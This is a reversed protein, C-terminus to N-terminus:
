GVRLPHHVGDVASDGGLLSALDMATLCNRSGSRPSPSVSASRIEQFTRTPSSTFSLWTSASTSVAFAITSNGDGKSPVTTARCAASFEVTATPAGSMEISTAPASGSAGAM